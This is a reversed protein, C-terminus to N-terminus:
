YLRPELCDVPALHTYGFTPLAEQNQPTRIRLGSISVAGVGSILRFAAIDLLRRHREAGM